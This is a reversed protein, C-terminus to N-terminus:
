VTGALAWHARPAEKEMISTPPSESGVLRVVGHNKKEKKLCLKAALKVAEKRTLGSELLPATYDIGTCHIVITEAQQAEL